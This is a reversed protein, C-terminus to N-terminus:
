VSWFILTRRFEAPPTEHALARMKLGARSILIIDFVLVLTGLFRVAGRSLTM